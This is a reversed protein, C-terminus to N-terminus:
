LSRLITLLSTTDLLRLSVILSLGLFWLLPSRIGRCLWKYLWKKFFTKLASFCLSLLLRPVTSNLISSGNTSTFVSLGVRSYLDPPKQRESVERPWKRGYGSSLWVFPFSAKSGPHESGVSVILVVFIQSGWFGFLFILM